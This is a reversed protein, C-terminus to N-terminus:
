TIRIRLESNVLSSSQFAAFHLVKGMLKRKHDAANVETHISILPIFVHPLVSLKCIENFLDKNTNQLHIFTKHTQFFV